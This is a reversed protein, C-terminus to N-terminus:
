RAISNPRDRPIAGDGDSNTFRPRLAGDAITSLAVPQRLEGSALKKQMAAYRKKAAFKNLFYILVIAGIIISAIIGLLNLSWQTFPNLTFYQM